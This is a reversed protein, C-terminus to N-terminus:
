AKRLREALDSVEDSTFVYMKKCFECTAETEPRERAMKNLEDAGLGLLAAEVKERTCRCSFQVDITRHSRLEAEGALAHLLAHADAGGAILKTIPPMALAREELKAVASEDAGPLLQAIVGGAAKVGGPDALVGLAVISPIQESNVLYAAIDEAIEGSYLPVVGVYPQGVEYSKTVHMSGSGVAGAVDFKGLDNLPLDVQPNEAYGRAAIREDDILWADAVVTGLPGDGSIQLSIRERGKLSSGLLAAGTTLRGVAATATPSLGHREQAERVLDTTIGAVLAFGADPASASILLDPM